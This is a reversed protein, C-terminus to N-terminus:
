LPVGLALAEIPTASYAELLSPFFVGDSARLLTSVQGIALEGLNESVSRVGTGIKEWEAETLTLLFRTQHGRRALASAVLPLFKMNKHAYPRTPYALVHVSDGRAALVRERLDPDDETSVVRRNVANAVVAIPPCRRTVAHRVQTAMATTEVLLLDQLSAETRSLWGRLTTRRSRSSCSTSYVSTVDAFGLIRRSARPLSYIPGFVVLSAECPRRLDRWISAPRLPRRDFVECGLRDLSSALANAAVSSSVEFSTNAILKTWYHDDALLAIEDILSAGVQVGGGVHLNSAIFRFHATM